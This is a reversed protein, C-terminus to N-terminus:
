PTIVPLMARVADRGAQVISGSQILPHNMPVFRALKFFSRNALVAAAESRRDGTLELTYGPGDKWEWLSASLCLCLGRDAINLYRNILNQKHRRVGPGELIIAFVVHHGWWILSRLSFKEERTYHRPFDLYQYPFHELNEGKVFQVARPDFGQPSLLEIGDLEAQFTQHLRELTQRIKESIRAKAQFFEVDSLLKIEEDSFPIPENM